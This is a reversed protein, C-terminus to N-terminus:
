NSIALYSLILTATSTLAQLISIEGFLVHLPSRRVEIIDGPRIRIDIGDDRTGDKHLISIRKDTGSPLIGGAMAIFDNATWGPVFDFKGPAAVYGNVRVNEEALIEIVDGEQLIFNKFENAGIQLQQIGKESRRVILADTIDANMALDVNRRLFSSLSENGQMAYYGRQFSAGRIAVLDEGWEAFPIFIQDGEILYPNQELDGELRLQHWDLKMQAGGSRFIEVRSLAGIPKIEALTAIEYPRTIPTALYFGPYLVAGYVWVKFQRVRQLDVNMEIDRISKKSLALVTDIADDLALGGVMIKGIQPVSIMGTPSVRLVLVREEPSIINMLLEDGAGLIYQSPDITRELAQPEFELNSPPLKSTEQETKASQDDKPDNKFQGLLILPVTILM